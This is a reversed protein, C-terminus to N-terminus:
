RAVVVRNRGASKGEYLANDARKLCDGLSESAGCQAIGITVSVSTGLQKSLETHIIDNLKTAAVEAGALETNNALLIFEEGGWRGLVDSGRLRSQMLQAGTVLTFDGQNHGLTDNIKKFHDFDIMTICFPQQSQGLATKANALQTQLYRRNPLGTLSDHNAQAELKESAALLESTRSMVKQELSNSLEELEGNRSHLGKYLVKNEEGARIFITYTLYNQCLVFCVLGISSLSATEIASIVYLMDNVVSIFLLFSGVLLLRAGSKKRKVAVCLGYLCYCICTVAFVQYGALTASFVYVPTILVFLSYGISIFCAGFVIRRNLIGDLYKYAYLTMALTALAFSIFNLQINTDFPLDLLGMFKFIQSNETERVALILCLFAVFLPLVNKPKLSFQMLNFACVVFFVALIFASQFIQKNLENYLIAPTSIRPSEWLGGWYYDFNSTQIILDFHTSPPTFEFVGPQYKGIAQEADLAVKGGSAILNENIYVRYATGLVPIRIGVSKYARDLKVQLHYTAAGLSPLNKGDLTQDAWSKTTKIFQKDTANPQLEQWSVLQQWYFRWDGDLPISRSDELSISSLDITGKVAHPLQKDSSADVLVLVVFFLIACLMGMLVLSSFKLVSSSLKAANM